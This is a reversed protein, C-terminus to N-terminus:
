REFLVWRLSKKNPPPLKVPLALAGMLVSAALMSILQWATPVDVWGAM